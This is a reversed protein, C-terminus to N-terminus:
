GITITNKDLRETQLTLDRDAIEIDEMLANKKAQSEVGESKANIKSTSSSSRECKTM